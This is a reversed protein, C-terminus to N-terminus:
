INLAEGGPVYKIILDRLEEVSLFKGNSESNYCFGDKCYEGPKSNSKKVFEGKNWEIQDSNPIIAFYNGFEITDGEEFFGAPSPPLEVNPIGYMKAVM